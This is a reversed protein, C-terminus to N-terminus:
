VDPGMRSFKKIQTDRDVVDSESVRCCQDNRGSVSFRLCTQAFAHAREHLRLQVPSCGRVHLGAGGSWFTSSCLLFAGLFLVFIARTRCFVDGRVIRLCRDPKEAYRQTAM